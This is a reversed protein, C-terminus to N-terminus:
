VIPADSILPALESGPMHGHDPLSREGPLLFADMLESQDHDLGAKHGLEHMLVTLLDIRGEAGGGELALGDEGFQGDEGPTPDVFWGHGAADTDIAIQGATHGGITDGALDAM